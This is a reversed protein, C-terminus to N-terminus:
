EVMDVKIEDMKVKLKQLIFLLAIRKNIVPWLNWIRM